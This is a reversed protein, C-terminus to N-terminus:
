YAFENFQSFYLFLFVPLSVIFLFTAIIGFIFILLILFPIGCPDNKWGSPNIPIESRDENNFRPRLFFYYVSYWFIAITPFYFFLYLSFSYEGLFSIFFPLFYGEYAIFSIFAYIKRSNKWSPKWDEPKVKELKKVTDKLNLSKEPIDEINFRVFDEQSSSM